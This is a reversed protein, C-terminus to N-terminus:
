FDDKAGAVAFFTGNRPGGLISYLLLLYPANYSLVQIMHGPPGIRRTM